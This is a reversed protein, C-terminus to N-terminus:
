KQMNVKRKAIAHGLRNRMGLLKFTINLTQERIWTQRMDRRTIDM